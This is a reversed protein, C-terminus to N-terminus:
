SGLHLYECGQADLPPIELNNVSIVWPVSGLIESVFGLFCTSAMVRLLPFSNSCDFSASCCAFLSSVETGLSCTAEVGICGDVGFGDDLAM